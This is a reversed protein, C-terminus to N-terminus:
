IQGNDKLREPIDTSQGRLISRRLGDIILVIGIFVGISGAILVTPNPMLEGFNVSPVVYGTIISITTIPISFGIIVLGIVVEFLGRSRLMLGGLTNNDECLNLSPM